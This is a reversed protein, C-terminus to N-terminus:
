GKQFALLPMLNVFTKHRCSTNAASIGANLCKYQMRSRSLAIEREGREREEQNQMLWLQHFHWGLWGRFVCKDRRVNKRKPLLLYFPQSRIGKWKTLKKWKQANGRMKFEKPKWIQPESLSSCGTDIQDTRRIVYHDSKGCNAHTDTDMWTWFSSGFHHKGLLWEPTLPLARDQPVQPHSGVDRFWVFESNFLIRVSKLLTSEVPNHSFLLFSFHSVSIIPQASTLAAIRWHKLVTSRHLLFVSVSTSYNTHPPSSIGVQFFTNKNNAPSLAKVRTKFKEQFEAAAPQNCETGMPLFCVCPLFERVRSITGPSKKRACVQTKNEIKMWVPEILTRCCRFPILTKSCGRGEQDQPWERSVIVM